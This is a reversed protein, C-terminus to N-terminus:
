KGGRRRKRSRLVAKWFKPKLLVKWPLKIQPRMHPPLSALAAKAGHFDRDQLLFAARVRDLLKDHPFIRRARDLLARADEKRGIRDLTMSLQACGSPIHPPDALVARVQEDLEAQRGDEHLVEFLAQLLAPQRGFRELGRNLEAVAGARDGRHRMLAARGVTKNEFRDPDGAMRELLRELADWQRLEIQIPVQLARLNQQWFPNAEREMEEYQALASRRDGKRHLSTAAQMRTTFALAPLAEAARQRLAAAKAVDGRAEAVRSLVGLAIVGEPNIELAFNAAEVAEDLKGQFSLARALESWATASEPQQAVAERFIREAELLDKDRLAVRGLAVKYSVSARVAPSAEELLAAAREADGLQLCISYAQSWGGAGDPDRLRGREAYGYARENNGLVSYYATAARLTTWHEPSRREAESLSEEAKEYKAEMCLFEAQLAFAPGLDGAGALATALEQRAEDKRGTWMLPLACLARLTPDEPFQAAAVRALALTYAMSSEGLSRRVADDAVAPSEFSEPVTPTAM